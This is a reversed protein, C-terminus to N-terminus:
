KIVKVKAREEEPLTAIEKNVIYLFDSMCDHIVKLMKMMDLEDNSINDHVRKIRSGNMTVRTYLNQCAMELQGLMVKTKNSQDIVDEADGKIDSNAEIKKELKKSLTSIKHNLAINYNKKAEKTDKEEKKRIALEKDLAIKGNNLDENYEALRDYRAIVRDVDEPNDDGRLMVVQQLFKHYKEDRQALLKQKRILDRECKEIEAKLKEIEDESVL